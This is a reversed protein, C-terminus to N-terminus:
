SGEPAARRFRYGRLRLMLDKRLIDLRYKWLALGKDRRQAILLRPYDSEEHERYVLRRRIGRHPEWDRGRRFFNFDGFQSPDRFSELGHKKCLLSFLSQDHRHEIFDERQPEELLDTLCLPDQAYRLYEDFFGRAEEVNRVLFFSALIQPSERFAPGDCGLIRFAEAKTYQEEVFPLDFPLLWLDRRLCFRELHRLSRVFFAGADCYFLFAGPPLLDLTRRVLYPKWLWYGAGRPQSLIGEHRRRFSDELDFPSYAFVHDVEGTRLATETNRRQQDLFHRDAFNLSCLM